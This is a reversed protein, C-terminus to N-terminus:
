AALNVKAAFENDIELAFPIGIREGDQATKITVSILDLEQANIVKRRPVWLPRVAEGKAASEQVFAIAAETERVVFGQVRM